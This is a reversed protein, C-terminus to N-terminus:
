WIYMNRKSSTKYGRIFEVMDIVVGWLMFIFLWTQDIVLIIAIRLWMLKWRFFIINKLFFLFQLFGWISFYIFKYLFIVFCIWLIEIIELLTECNCNVVMFGNIFRWFWYFFLFINASGQAPNAKIQRTLSDQVEM